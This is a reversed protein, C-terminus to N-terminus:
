ASQAYADTQRCASALWAAMEQAPMPRAHLYGQSEDCGSERVVALEAETEVGEAVVEMSLSRALATIAQIISRNVQLQDVNRVFSQDIKLRQIPFRRLYGLSSFGTGFDDLSLQIGLAKLHELTDLIHPSTSMVMSETLELELHGPQIGTEDIIQRVRAAFGAQRFQLSSINVAMRLPPLGQKMWARQQKCAHSLVWEGIPVILGSEEAISIFSVPTLLGRSPHQWRILAEVGIVQGSALDLQPQYFLTFEDCALARKLDSELSLKEVSYTSIDPSYHRYGNRGNIKVEYMAADAKSLLIGVDTDDRPFLAIGISLSVEIERDLIHFADRATEVLRSALIDADEPGNIGDMLIAFEDGGLRALTDSERICDNLRGVMAQLLYDGFRHGLSDNVQKFRDIDVFMLALQEGTRKAELCAQNLRDTFLIRNPINTLADYHALYFLERQKRQTIENFLDYGTAVGIYREDQTLLIGSVMHEMGAGIVIQAADDIRTSIDVVLPKHLKFIDPNVSMIQDLTRKGFVERSYLQGFFEVFTHRDILAVPKGAKDVIPLALLHEDQHFRELAEFCFSGDLIPLVPKLLQSVAPSQVQHAEAAWASFNPPVRSPSMDIAQAM